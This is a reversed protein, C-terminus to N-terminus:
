ERKMLIRAPVVKKLKVALAQNIIFYLALIAMYIGVYLQWQFTLNIGCSVNSVLYPYLGDMVRKCVPICILAGASIIYFNGSLYLRRTERFNYGFIKFLSISWASRDIMVKMMLYMVVFFILASIGTLMYVMPMMMDIFM